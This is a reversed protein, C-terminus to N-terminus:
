GRDDLFARLKEARTPHRLKAMAKMEIQRVRERTVELQKGIEELTHDSVTELGFRMRLVKQEKPSLDELVESIARQMGSHMALAEPTLNADDSIFDGLMADGDDGAPADLSAPEKAIRLVEQVREVTLGMKEALAAADPESGTATVTQRIIRNMKNITEIMHVPVRITRAQDAIARSISQRVWWTAYTSFKFGRRYEYKEVARLLGINGEQILDLFQLGRNVYKKAISIVLRLNAKTLDRKADMARREGALMHRGIERLDRLPVGARTEVEALKAQLEQVAHIRRELAPSYPYACDIERQMWDMDTQNEGFTRIFRDRPMGCQDVVIAAVQREFVRVEDMQKRVVTCLKEVTKPTFRIGLMAQTIAQQAAARGAADNRMVEAQSAILAFKALSLTRVQALQEASPGADESESVLEDEEEDMDDIDGDEDSASAAPTTDELEILGDVVDDVSLQEKEIKEALVLLEAVAAPSASIAGIMEQRGDEIRRAIEVEGERTLLQTTAMERMYMRVPDTSRGYDEDGSLATAAVAEVEDDSAGSVVRDSLLLLADDPAQDVVSIGMDGMTQMIEAITDSDLIDEPLLDNVEAHTLYGREKGMKILTALQKRHKDIGEDSKKASSKRVKAARQEAYEAANWEAVEESEVSPGSPKRGPRAAAPAPAPVTPPTSEVVPAPAPAAAQRIVAAPAPAPKEAPKKALVRVKGKAPVTTEAVPELAPKEEAPVPEPTSPAALRSRKRIVVPAPVPAAPQVAFEPMDDVVPATEEVTVTEVAPAAEAVPAVALEVPAAPEQVAEEVVLASEPAAVAVPEASSTSFVRPRKRIVVPGQAPAAGSGPEDDPPLAAAPPAALRSRRVVITPARGIEAESLPDPASGSAPLPSDAVTAPRAPRASLTLTKLNKNM